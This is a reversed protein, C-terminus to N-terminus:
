WIALDLYLPSAHARNRRYHEPVALQCPSLASSRALSEEQAQAGGLFGGGRTRASACTLCALPARPDALRGFAAITADETVAITTARAGATGAGRYTEADYLRTGRRAREVADALEVREGHANAYGGAECAALTAQAIEAKGARAGALEPAPVDLY